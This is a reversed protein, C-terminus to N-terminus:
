VHVIACVANEAAGSVGHMAHWVWKDQMQGDLRLRAGTTGTDVIFEARSLPDFGLGDGRAKVYAQICVTCADQSDPLHHFMCNLM